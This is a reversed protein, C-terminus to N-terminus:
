GVVSDCDIM